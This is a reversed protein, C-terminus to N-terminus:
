SSERHETKNKRYKSPTLRYRTKFCKIYYSIDFFGCIMAVETITLETTKLLIASQELRFQILYKIPSTKLITKFCRLCESEKVNASAAIDKLLINSSFNKEIYSIMKKLRSLMKMQSNDLEFTSNKNEQLVDILIRTLNERDIFEQAFNNEHSDEFFSSILLNSQPLLMSYGLSTKLTLPYIYKQFLISSTDGYILRPHFVISKIICPEIGVGSGSHLRGTNIFISQGKSLEIQTFDINVKFTGSVVLILEFEEHWHHKIYKSNLNNSTYHAIPFEQVGHPHLERNNESVPFKDKM